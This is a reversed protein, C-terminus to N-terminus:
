LLVKLPEYHAVGERVQAAAANEKDVFEAFFRDLYPHVKVIDGFEDRYNTGDFCYGSPLEDFAREKKIAEREQLTLSEM